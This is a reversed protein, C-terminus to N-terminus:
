SYTAFVHDALEALNKRPIAEFGRREGIPNLLPM